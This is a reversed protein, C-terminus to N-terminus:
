PCEVEQADPLNSLPQFSLALAKNLQEGPIEFINIKGDPRGCMATYMRGDTGCAYSLVPVGADVLERSMEAPPKGQDGCQIAGRSKYVKVSQTTTSQPEVPQTGSAGSQSAGCGSVVMAASLIFNRTRM